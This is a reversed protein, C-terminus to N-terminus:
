EENIRKTRALITKSCGGRRGLLSNLAILEGHRDQYSERDFHLNFIERMM